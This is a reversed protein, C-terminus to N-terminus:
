VIVVVDAEPRRAEGRRQEPQSDAGGGPAVLLLQRVGHMLQQLFIGAQRQLVVRVGLFGHQAAQAIQVQADRQFLHLLAVVDLDLGFRGLDGVLFRDALVSFTVVAM